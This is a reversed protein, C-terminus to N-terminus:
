DELGTNDGYGQPNDTGGSMTTSSGSAERLSQALAELAAKKAAEEAMLKAAAEAQAQEQADVDEKLLVILKRITDAQSSSPEFNLYSVYDSVADSFRNLRLRVNARNLYASAYDPKEIIAQGYAEEAFINKSQATLCNGLNFYFLHRNKVAKLAGKRFTDAAKDLLSLQQYAVGLYLWAKEDMGPIQIAQELFVAAEKPKNAM